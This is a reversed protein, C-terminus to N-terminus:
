PVNLIEYPRPTRPNSNMATNEQLIPFLPCDLSYHLRIVRVASILREFDFGNPM